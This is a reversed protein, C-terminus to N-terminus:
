KFLISAVFEGDEEKFECCAGYKEAAEIINTIGIGEKKADKDKSSIFGRGKTKLKTVIPNKMILMSDEGLATMRLTIYRKGDIRLCEEIANDLLNSMIISVDIDELKNLRELNGVFDFEIGAEQMVPYKVSLLIDTIKNGTPAPGNNVGSRQLEGIYREAEEYNGDELLKNVVIFHNKMDHGTKIDKDRRTETLKIGNVANDFQTATAEAQEKYKKAINRHIVGYFVAVDVVILFVIWGLGITFRGDKEIITEMVMVMVPLFVCFVTIFIAEGISLKVWVGKKKSIHLLWILAFLLIFDAFVYLPTQEKGDLYFYYKDPILFEDISEAITSIQTDILIASVVALVYRLKGGSLYVAALMMTLLVIIFQVNENIGLVTILIYILAACLIAKIFRKRKGAEDNGKINMGFLLELILIINVTMTINLIISFAAELYKNM